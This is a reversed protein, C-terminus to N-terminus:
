AWAWSPSVITGSRQRSPERKINHSRPGTIPQPATLGGTPTSGVIKYNLKWNKYRVASPRTGTFYFFAERASKGVQRELYDVQDVGDLKTKFIGPYRGGM